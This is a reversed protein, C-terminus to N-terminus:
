GLAPTLHNLFLYVEPAGQVAWRALWDTGLEPLSQAELFSTLSLRSFTGLTLRQGRSVCACTYVCMCSTCMCVRMCSVCVCVCVCVLFFM